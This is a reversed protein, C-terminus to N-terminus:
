AFLCCTTVLMTYAVALFITGWFSYKFEKDVHSLWALFVEVVIGFGMFIKIFVAFWAVELRMTWFGAGYLVGALVTLFLLPECVSRNKQPKGHRLGVIVVWVLMLAWFAVLYGNM